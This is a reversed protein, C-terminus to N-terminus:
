VGLWCFSYLILIFIGATLIVCPLDFVMQFTVIYKDDFNYVYKKKTSYAMLFPFFFPPPIVWLPWKETIKKNNTVYLRQESSFFKSLSIIQAFFLPLSQMVLVNLSWSTQRLPDSLETSYIIHCYYEILFLFVQQLFLHPPFPDFILVHNVVFFFKSCSIIDSKKKRRWNQQQRRPEKKAPFPLLVHCYLVM